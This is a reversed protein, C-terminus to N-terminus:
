KSKAKAAGFCMAKILPSCVLQQLNFCIFFLLTGAFCGTANSDMVVGKVDFDQTKAVTQTQCRYICM